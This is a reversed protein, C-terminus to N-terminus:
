HFLVNKALDLQMFKIHVPFEPDAIQLTGDFKIVEGKENESWTLMAKTQNLSLLSNVPDFIHYSHVDIKCDSLNMEKKDFDFIKNDILRFKDLDYTIYFFYRNDFYKGDHIEIRLHDKNTLNTSALSIKGQSFSFDKIASPEALSWEGLYLINNIKLLFSTVNEIKLDNYVQM